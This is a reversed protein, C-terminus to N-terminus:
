KQLKNVIVKAPRLLRDESKYGSQMVCLVTNDQKEGDQAMSVAEHYAPDFKTGVGEVRKIGVTELTDVIQDITMRLGEKTNKLVENQACDEDSISEYARELNDIPDLLKKVADELPRRAQKKFNDKLREQTKNLDHLQLALVENKKESKELKARLTAIEAEYAAADGSAENDEAGDKKADENGKLGSADLQSLFSDEGEELDLDDDDDEEDIGNLIRELEDDGSEIESETEKEIKGADKPAGGKEEPSVKNEEIEKKDKSM